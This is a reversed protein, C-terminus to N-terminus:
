WMANRHKTIEATVPNEKGPKPPAPAPIEAPVAPDPAPDEQPYRRDPEEEAQAVSKPTEKPLLSETVKLVPNWDPKLKDALEAPLKATNLKQIGSGTEISVM